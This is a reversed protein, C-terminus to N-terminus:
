RHSPCSRRPAPSLSGWRCRPTPAAPARATAARRLVVREGILYTVGDAGARATHVTGKPLMLREGPRVRFERGGAGFLLEGELVWLSEDHAHSHPEYNAGAEDRWHFVEFGEDILNQRLTEESPLVAGNWPILELRM